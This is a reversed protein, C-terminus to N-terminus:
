TLDILYSLSGVLVNLHSMTHLVWRLVSNDLPKWPEGVARPTSCAHLSSQRMRILPLSALFCVLM